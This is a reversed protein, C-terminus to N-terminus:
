PSDERLARRLAGLRTGQRILEDALRYLGCLAAATAVFFLHDTWDLTRDLVGPRSWAVALLALVANRAPLAWSLRQAPGGCGCDIDRRGRLLNIAMAGAYVVLLVAAVAFAPARTAPLTLLPVLATEVVALAVTAPMLLDPPLLRYAGLARAFDHRDSWKHWAATALLMAFLVVGAGAVVPDRLWAGTLLDTGTM